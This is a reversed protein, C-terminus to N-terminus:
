MTRRRGMLPGAFISHIDHKLFLYIEQSLKLVHPKCVQGQKCRPLSRVEIVPESEDTLNPDMLLICMHVYIDFNEGYIFVAGDAAASPPATHRPAFDDSTKALINSFLMRLDILVWRVSFRGICYFLEIVAIWHLLCNSGVM